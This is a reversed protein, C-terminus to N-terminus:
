RPDASPGSDKGRAPPAAAGTGPKAGREVLFAVVSDYKLARAADLATRGDPNAANVDVGLEVALKVSELTLPPEGPLFVARDRDRYVDGLVLDAASRAEEDPNWWM